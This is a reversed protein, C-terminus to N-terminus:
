SRSDLPQPSHSRRQNPLSYIKTRQFQPDCAAVTAAQGAVPVAAPLADAPSRHEIVIMSVGRTAGPPVIVNRWRREAGSREDRGRGDAPDPLELGRARLTAVVVDLDETGFALALPGEGREDIWARVHSALPGDGTAALLEVYTNELRFLTNATGDGPHRGRWSPERGLLNGYTETARGLDRVALVIHDLSTLVPGPM